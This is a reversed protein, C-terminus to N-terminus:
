EEGDYEDDEYAYDRERDEILQNYKALVADWKDDDLWGCGMGTKMDVTYWGVKKGDLLLLGDKMETVAIIKGGRERISRQKKQPSWLASVVLAQAEHSKTTIKQGLKALINM